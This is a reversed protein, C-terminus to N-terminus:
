LELAKRNRCNLRIYSLIGRVVIHKTFNEIVFCPITQDGKMYVEVLQFRGTRTGNVTIVSLKEYGIEKYKVHELIQRSIWNAGSGTDLLTRTRYVDRENKLLPIVLTPSFSMEVSDLVEASHEAQNNSFNIYNHVDRIFNIDGVVEEPRSTPHREVVEYKRGYSGSPHVEEKVDQVQRIDCVQTAISLPSQCTKDQPGPHEYGDCTWYWHHQGEHRYCNAKFFCFEGHSNMPTACAQCLGLKILRDRVQQITPYHACRMAGHGEESCLQCTRKCQRRGKGRGWVGSSGRGRGGKSGGSPHSGTTLQSDLRKLHHNQHPQPRAQLTLIPYEPKPSYQAMGISCMYARQVQRWTFKYKKPFMIKLQAELRIKFEGPLTQMIYNVVVEECSLELDEMDTAFRGAKRLPLITM